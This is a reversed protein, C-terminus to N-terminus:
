NVPVSPATADNQDRSDANVPPSRRAQSARRSVRCPVQRGERQLRGSDGQVYGSRALAHVLREAAADGDVAVALDLDRTYRPESRISVAIGGIVAWSVEEVRLREAVRELADEIEEVGVKKAM